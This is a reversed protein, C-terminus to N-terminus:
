AVHGALTWTGPDVRKQLDASVLGASWRNQYTLVAERGYLLKPEYCVKRLERPREVVICIYAPFCRAGSSNHERLVKTSCLLVTAPTM